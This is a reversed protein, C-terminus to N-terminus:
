RETVKGSSDARIVLEGVDVASMDGSGDDIQVRGAVRSVDIQGSGDRSISGQVFAGADSIAVFTAGDPSLEIGSFGGFLGEAPKAWVFESLPAAAALPDKAALPLTLLAAAAALIGLAFLAREQM